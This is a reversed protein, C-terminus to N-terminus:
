VFELRHTLFAPQLCSARLKGFARKHADIAMPPGYPMHYPEGWGTIGCTTSFVQNLECRDDITDYKAVYRVVAAGIGLDLIAFYAVVSQVLSWVGYRGDGL